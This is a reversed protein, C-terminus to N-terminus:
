KERQIVYLILGVNLVFDELAPTEAPINDLFSTITKGDFTFTPWGDPYVFNEFTFPNLAQMYGACAGVREEETMHEADNLVHRPVPAFRGRAWFDAPVPPLAQTPPVM